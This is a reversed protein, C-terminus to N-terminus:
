MSQRGDPSLRLIPCSQEKISLIIELVIHHALMHLRMMSCCATDGQKQLQVHPNQLMGCCAAHKITVFIPSLLFHVVEKSVKFWHM